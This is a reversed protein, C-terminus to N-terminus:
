HVITADPFLRLASACRGSLPTNPFTAQCNELKGSTPREGTPYAPAFCGDSRRAWFCDMACASKWSKWTCCSPRGVAATSIGSDPLRWNHGLCSEDPQISFFVGAEVSVALRRSAGEFSHGSAREYNGPQGDDARLRHDVRISSAADRVRISSNAVCLIM